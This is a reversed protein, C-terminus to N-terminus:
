AGAGAADGVVEGLTGLEDPHLTLQGLHFPLGRRAVRAAVYDPVHHEPPALPFQEGVMTVLPERFGNNEQAAVLLYAHRACSAVQCILRIPLCQEVDAAAGNLDDGGRQGYQEPTRALVAGSSACDARVVAPIPRCASTRIATAS